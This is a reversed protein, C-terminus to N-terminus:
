KNKEFVTVSIGSLLLHTHQKLNFYVYLFICIGRVIRACQIYMNGFSCFIHLRHYELFLTSFIGLRCMHCGMQCTVIIHLCMWMAAAYMNGHYMALWFRPRQLLRGVYCRYPFPQVNWNEYLLLYVFHLYLFCYLVYQHLPSLYLVCVSAYSM